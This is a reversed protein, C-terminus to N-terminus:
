ASSSPLRMTGFGMRNVRLDGGLAFDSNNNTM